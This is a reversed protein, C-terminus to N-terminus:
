HTPFTPYIHHTWDPLFTSKYYYTKVLHAKVIKIIKIINTRKKQHLM